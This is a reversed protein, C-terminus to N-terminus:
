RDSFGDLADDTHRHLTRVNRKRAAVLRHAPAAARVDGLARNAPGMGGKDPENNRSRSPHRQGAGRTSSSPHYWVRETFVNFEQSSSLLAFGGELMACPVAPAIVLLHLDYLSCDAPM